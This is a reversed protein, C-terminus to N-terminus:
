NATQPKGNQGSRWCYAMLAERMVEPKHVRRLTVLNGMGPDCANNPLAMYTPLPTKDTIPVLKVKKGIKSIPIAWIFASPMSPCSAYPLISPVAITHESSSSKKEAKGVLIRLFSNGGTTDHTVTIRIPTASV